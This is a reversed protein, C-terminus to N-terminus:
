QKRNKTNAIAILDTFFKEFPLKEAITLLLMRIIGAKEYDVPEDEFDEIKWIQLSEKEQIFFNNDKLDLTFIIDEKKNFILRMVKTAKDNSFIATEMYFMTKDKTSDKIVEVIAEILYANGILEKPNTCNLILDFAKEEQNINKPKTKEKELREVLKELEPKLMLEQTPQFIM